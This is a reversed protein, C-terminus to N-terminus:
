LRFSNSVVPKTGAYPPVLHALVPAIPRGTSRPCAAFVPVDEADLPTSFPFGSSGGNRARDHGQMMSSQCVSPTICPCPVGVAAEANSFPSILHPASIKKGSLIEVASSQMAVQTVLTDVARLMGGLGKARAMSAVGDGGGFATDLQYDGSGNDNIRAVLM